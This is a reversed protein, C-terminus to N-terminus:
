IPPLNNLTVFKRKKSFFLLLIELQSIFKEKKSLKYIKSNPINILDWSHIMFIPKKYISIFFLYIMLLYKPLIRLTVSSFPMIFSSIPIEKLGGWFHPKMKRFNHVLKLKIKWFFLLHYFNWPTISSDYEFKYKKLLFLTEKDISHQPARFGKPKIKLYKKFCEISKKINEEKEKYTLEDFRVHRYGHLAIEHGEKILKKFVEPYKEICDCTVFFTAKIKYKNLLSLIKPIGETIGKYTNSHLDPEVDITFSIIKM